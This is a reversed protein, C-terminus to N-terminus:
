HDRQRQLRRLQGGVGCDGDECCRSANRAAADTRWLWMPFRGVAPATPRQGEEGGCRSALWRSIAPSPSRQAEDAQVFRPRVDAAARLGARRGSPLHRENGALHRRQRGVQEPQRITAGAAEIQPLLRGGGPGRQEPAHLGVRHHRDLRAVCIPGLAARQAPISMAPAGVARRDRHPDGLVRQGAHSVGFAFHYRCYSGSQAGRRPFALNSAINGFYPIQARPCRIWPDFNRRSM